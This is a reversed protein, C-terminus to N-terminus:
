GDSDCKPVYITRIRMAYKLQDPSNILKTTIVTLMLTIIRELLAAAAERTRRAQEIEEITLSTFASKQPENRNLTTM